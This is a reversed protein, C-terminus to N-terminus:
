RHENKFIFGYCKQLVKFVTLFFLKVDTAISVTAAYKIRLKNKRPLVIKEYMEDANEGGVIEDLNIFEISSYDTMGPRVELITKETGTYLDTYRLLEPRPGIFSVEGKLVNLLNPIEDIKMKRIISGVKTIRTDNLATTGGGIKDANKVMSRFKYIKFPKGHLGGRNAKYLIPFGDEAVIAIAVILYVPSVCILIVIAFVFDIIRKIIKNYIGHYGVVLSEDIDSAKISEDDIQAYLLKRKKKKNM